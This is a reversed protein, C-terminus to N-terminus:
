LLLCITIQSFKISKDQKRLIHTGNLDNQAPKPAYGHRVSVSAVSRSIYGLVQGNSACSRRDQNQVSSQCLTSASFTESCSM